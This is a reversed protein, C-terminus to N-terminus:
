KKVKVKMVLTKTKDNKMTVKAKIKVIGKAKTKVQGKKTVIAIKKNSTTYVIKKINAKKTKKSLMVQFSKGSKKTKQSTSLKVTKIIQKSVRNMEAENLLTYDKGASAKITLDQNDKIKYEVANVMTYTGTKADYEYLYLSNGSELKKKNVTLSYLQKNANDTVSVIIDVDKTGAAEAIQNTLFSSITFKAKGTTTVEGQKSVYASAEMVSGSSDKVTAVITKTNDSSFSSEETTQSISGNATINEIIVKSVITGSSNTITAKTTAIASGDTAIETICEKIITGDPATETVTKVKVGDATTQEETKIVTGDPKTEINDTSTTPLTANSDTSPKTNDSPTTNSDTSPINSSGSGGISSSGGSINGGSNSGGSNSGGSGSGSPDDGSSQKSEIVLKGTTYVFEYNPNELGSAVIFYTGAVNNSPVVEKGNEDTYSFDLTGISNDNSVLGEISYDTDKKLEVLSPISDGVSITKDNVRVNVTKKTINFTASAIGIYKSNTNNISVTVKYSGVNVPAESSSYGADDTSEYLITIDNIEVKEGDETSWVPTGSYAFKEGKYIGTEPMTIGTLQLVTKNTPVLTLIANKIIYNPNSFGIEITAIQEESNVSEVPITLISGEMKPTNAIISSGSVFGIKYITDGTINAIMNSVDFKYNTALNKTIFLTQDLPTIEKPEITYKMTTRQPKYCKETDEAIEAYIFYDGANTPLGKIKNESNITSYSFNIEGTPISTVAEFDTGLAIPQGDYISSTGDLSFSFDKYVHMTELVESQNGASDETTIKLVHIGPTDITIKEGDKLDIAAAGDLSYRLFKLPADEGQVSITYVVSDDYANSGISDTYKTGEASLVIEPQINDQWIKDTSLYTVNGAQDTLKAYIFNTTNQKIKSEGSYLIWDSEPLLSLKKLGDEGTYSIDTILYEIKGNEMGSATDEAKITFTEETTTYFGFSTSDLFTDWVKDGVSISGTPAITDLNVTIQKEDSLYANKEEKLYYNFNGTYDESVVLESKWTKKDISILHGAPPVINVAGHYWNNSGKFESDLSADACTYNKISVPVELVGKSYNKSEAITVKLVYEGINSPIEKLLNNKADYWDFSFIPNNLAVDIIFDEKKPISIPNSTYTYNNIYQKNSITIPKRNVVISVSGSVSDYANSNPTFLWYVSTTGVEPITDLDKFSLTGPVPIGTGEEIFEFDAFSLSSLKDGYVLTNNVLKVPETPKIQIKDTLEVNVKYILDEYIATTVTVVISAKKGVSTSDTFAPVKYTLKGNTSVLPINIIDSDSGEVTVKYTAEEVDKPLKSAVDITVVDKGSGTAYSYSRQEEELSIADKKNITLIGKNVTVKYNTNAASNEAVIDYKGPKSDKTANTILTIKLDSLEDGDVLTEGEALKYTFEPNSEGYKRDANQANLNISKANITVPIRIEAPTFNESTVKTVLTYTDANKPITDLPKLSSLNGETQNGKYWQFDWVADADTNNTTFYEKTPIPITEGYTYSTSYNHTSIEGATKPRYNESALTLISEPYLNKTSDDYVFSCKNHEDPTFTYGNDVNGSLGALFLKDPNGISDGDCNTIDVMYNKGNEMTVINWMHGGAGTGGVLEGTVIYCKINNQFDSLECLYAFAKSYGECVVNTTPDNDFVYVLQWPDIGITSPLSSAADTNYETLSCIEKLYNKLKDYDTSNAYKAIIEDVNAKATQARQVQTSDVLYEGDAKAYNKDVTFSFQIYKVTTTGTRSSPNYTCSKPFGAIYGETKAFWYFEYPCDLLLTKIIKQLNIKQSIEVELDDCSKNLADDVEEGEGWSFDKSFNVDTLDINKKHEVGDIETDGPYLYLEANEEEGNAIKTIFDKLVIYIKKENENLSSLDSEGFGLSYTSIGYFLQELYGEFLKDNSPLGENDLPVNSQVAIDPIVEIIKNDIQDYQSEAKVSALDVNSGIVTATLFLTGLRKANKKLANM